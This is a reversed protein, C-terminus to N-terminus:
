EGTAALASDVVQYISVGGNRYVEELLGQEAMRDFKLLGDPNYYVWELQGVYIYRVDYEELIALAEATNTTGYLTNVDQIRNSVVTGPLVARQQRQHWDWGVVAPLGTYMAVRNAVSRYPNSNHGEAIVPSGDINRQMWQLAEYDFHLPINQGQDNYETVAMFAMGDLTKPAAPNMRISWKAPTALLPYLVAALLLVTLTGQWLRGSWRGRRARVAPWAWVLALGGAVSLMIWVQMYFKFVTNMRGIDGDLVIIEVLLTLGLASSILILPVRQEGSLGPRLGLLGAAVVLTMTVPAIWYGKLLLLSTAVVFVALGVLVPVAYREWSALTAATWGRSWARFERALHTLILFLFLGYVLLYNSLHTYSGPWLSFSSYATGYHSTFPRFLLVSLSILVLSQLGAQGVMPLSLRGHQRFVHYAVALLGIVLYTPYDWTNTAYLVGIALGGILWRLWTEWPASRRSQSTQLVLSVAWALALLTLPLSMMHAHLDGYLYTFYPFETIPQVEGPEANIARSASWFWDGPYIPATRDTLALTFAGDVTKVVADIPGVGTNITSDSTKYWASVLLPVEALNGLMLCLVVAVLGAAIAMRQLGNWLTRRGATTEGSDNVAAAHDPSETATADHHKRRRRQLSAAVNYTVSFTGLGTFCFLMPLILNYAVTTTVALLKTLAGVFVYGYYYYNIYGGAFWPDYPPFTTSKLVANFYSLNMPKEGGWIVDWVDPNGLRILIFLLYLGVALLEVFVILRANHRIFRIIERRGRWYLVANVLTLLGLGLLLTSRTHPLIKLSALLWVFYSLLLLILIRALPYGRDPLGRFVTFTLPFALWGLLVVALWWVVAALWPNQSLLGDPNVVDAFTGGAQQRAQEETPLMLGNPAATAQGPTMIIVQSLDVSGLSQQVVEPSYDASKAFLWVPPHDYVSFAEEAALEGPPPWGVEPPKGWRFAGGVDSIYLPGVHLDAHFQGVMEFGLEGNFLAGYYRTTLPYTLPLRPVSWIARQSSLVIYDAEDLWRYLNQRKEESDPYTIPMAGDVLGNYYSFFPDRGNLRVPLPDDWHESTVTSTDAVIPRPTLLEALVTYTTNAPVMVGPLAFLVPRRPRDLTVEQTVQALDQATAPDIISLRLTDSEGASAITEPASLYNFRVGTLLGGEPLSFNLLLPPGDPRFDFAQLPLQRQQPQGNVEYLVTAGSPVHEFMWSSAQVRTVPQRYIDVFSNAWLVTSGLVAIIVLGVAARGLVRQGARQWLAILAWGALLLLFPYIPLFYRISKVWRTSMFLFYAGAWVLPLSHALWDPRARIIRWLAWLFGFWATLGAALGMGWLVMNMWPWIIPARDTWQLAPPFSADPSQQGQIESMNARWQPNFDITSGVLLKLIGPEQGTEALSTDRVQQSDSFAYPQALRFTLVSIFAALLLGILVRQFDIVGQNTNLYRWGLESGLRASKSRARRALWLGGAVVAMGALPAVNIRSAVALGLGLGFLLWWRKQRGGQSVRVAGYMAVTTMAAAWNDMTYYHSQQIPLVAAAMLLAAILGARWDYLRRGILYTFLVTVLDILASLFRGVLHIGDYFTFRPTCITEFTQCFGNVWEAALRTITMPFNGYVYFSKGVNYPNLTSESTKLYSIPDTLQLLSTTDTLFREDPHLHYIADWDLGTFRFYSALTLILLLSIVAVAEWGKKRSDPRTDSIRNDDVMRDHDEAPIQEDTTM